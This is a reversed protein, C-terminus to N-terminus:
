GYGRYPYGLIDYDIVYSNIFYIFKYLSIYKIKLVVGLWQILNFYM